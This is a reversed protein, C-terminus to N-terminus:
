SESGEALEATLKTQAESADVPTFGRRYLQALVAAVGQYYLVPIPDGVRAHKFLGRALPKNEMIPIHLSIAHEKLKLANRRIGKALVMPVATKGRRYELAVAYHTPNTIVITADKMNEMMRRMSLQRATKRRHMKMELSGETAKTEEKIEDSSMRNDKEFQWWQYTYDVAAIIGLAMLIRWGVAWAVDVFFHGLEMVNVERVFVAANRLDKVAAYAFGVVVLLKVFSQASGVLRRLSFFQQIGNLPNLKSWKPELLQESLLFGVQSSQAVIVSMFIALFFGGLYFVMNQNLAYRFVTYPEHHFPVQRIQTFSAAMAQSLMQALLPGLILMGFLGITLLVTSVVDSSKVVSGQTRLETRRKSTAPLTREDSM